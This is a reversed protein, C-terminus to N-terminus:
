NRFDPKLAQKYAYQWDKEILFDFKDNDSHEPIFLYTEGIFECNVTGLKGKRNKGIIIQIHENDNKNRHLLLGLDVDQEIQGCDKIDSMRPARIEGKSGKEMDRNLQALAIVPIKMSKSLGAFYRSIDAIANARNQQPNTPIMQIYDIVVASLGGFRNVAQQVVGKISDITLGAKDCIALYTREKSDSIVEKYAHGVDYFVTSNRINQPDDKTFLHDPSIGTFGACLREIIDNSSMELSFFLIPKPDNNKHENFMIGAMINVALATKGVSPRAGIVTYSAKRIGGDLAQ